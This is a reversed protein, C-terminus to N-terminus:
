QSSLVATICPSVYASFVTRTDYKLLRHSKIGFSQRKHNQQPKEQSKVGGFDADRRSLWVSWAIFITKSALPLCTNSNKIPPPPSIPMPSSTATHEINMLWTGEPQSRWLDGLEMFCCWLCYFSFPPFCSSLLCLVIFLCGSLNEYICCYKFFFLCNWM